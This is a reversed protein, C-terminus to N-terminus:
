DTRHDSLKGQVPGAAEGPGFLPHQGALTGHPLRGPRRLAYGARHLARRVGEESHGLELAVARCSLYCRYLAWARDVEIKRRM